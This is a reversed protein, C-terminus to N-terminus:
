RDMRQSMGGPDPWFVEPPRSDGIVISASPALGWREIRLRPTHRLTVGPHRAVTDCM